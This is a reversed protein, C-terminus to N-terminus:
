EYTARRLRKRPINVYGGSHLMNECLYWGSHDLGMGGPIYCVKFQQMM